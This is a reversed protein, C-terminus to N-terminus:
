NSATSSQRARPHRLNYHHVEMALLCAGLFACLFGIYINYSGYEFIEDDDPSSSNSVYFVELRNKNKALESKLKETKWPKLKFFHKKGSEDIHVVVPYECPQLRNSEGSFRCTSEGHSVVELMVSTASLRTKINVALPM